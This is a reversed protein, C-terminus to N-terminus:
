EGEPCNDKLSFVVVGVTPSILDSAVNYQYRVSDGPCLEVSNLSKINHVTIVKENLNNRWLIFGFNIATSLAICVLFSWFLRWGWKDYRRNVNRELRKELESPSLPEHQLEEAPMSMIM